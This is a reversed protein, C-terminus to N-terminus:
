VSRRERYRSSLTRVAITMALLVLSESIITAGVAGRWSSRPIWVANLTLNLIMAGVQIGSRIGQYGSGTLTDALPFHVAQLLPVVALARVVESTAGYETGLVMPLLGACTYLGVSVFVGYPITFGLISRGFAWAERIGGRGQRFFKTYAASLLAGVPTYVLSVVRYAAGYLGTAELTAMSALMTRDLQGYANGAATGVSFFFGERLWTGKVVSGLHPRGVWLSVFVFCLLASAANAMAYYHAWTTIGHTITAVSFVGVAGLRALGTALRMVAMGQLRDVAQLAQSAAETIKIFILESLALILVVQVSLAPIVLSGITATVGVLVAGSVLVAICTTGWWQEFDSRNRAVHMVLLSGYGWGVFPAAVHLLALTGELAGFQEPGLLRALVVFYASNILLTGLQAILM